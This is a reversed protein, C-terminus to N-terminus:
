FCSFIRVLSEKHSAYAKVGRFFFKQSLELVVTRNLTYFHNVVFVSFRSSIGKNFKLVLPIQFLGVPSSIPLFDVSPSNNHIYFSAPGHPVPLGSPQTSSKPACPSAAIFDIDARRSTMRRRTGGNIMILIITMRPSISTISSISTSVTAVTPPSVVSTSTTSSVSIIATSTAPVSIITATVVAVAISAPPVTSLSPVIVSASTTAVTISPSVTISSIAMSPIAISSIAAPAITITTTTIAITTALFASMITTPVAVIIALWSLVLSLQAFM